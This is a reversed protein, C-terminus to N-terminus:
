MGKVAFLCCIENDPAHFFVKEGGESFFSASRLPKRWKTESFDCSEAM